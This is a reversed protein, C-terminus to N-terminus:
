MSSRRRISSSSSSSSSSHTEKHAVLFMVHSRARLRERQYVSDISCPIGYSCMCTSSILYAFVERLLVHLHTCSLYACCLSWIEGYCPRLQLLVFYCSLCVCVRVYSCSCSDSLTSAVWALLLQAQLVQAQLVQAM